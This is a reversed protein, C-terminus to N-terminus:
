NLRKTNVKIQEPIFPASSRLRFCFRAISDNRPLRITYIPGFSQSIGKELSPHLTEINAGCLCMHHLLFWFPPKTTSCLKANQATLLSPLAGLELVQCIDSLTKRVTPQLEAEYATVRGIFIGPFKAM